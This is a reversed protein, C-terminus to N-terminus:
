ALGSLFIITCFTPRNMSCISQYCTKRKSLVWHALKTTLIIVLHPSLSSSLLTVKVKSWWSFSAFSGPM